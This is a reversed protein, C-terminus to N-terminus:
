HVQPTGRGGGAPPGGAAGLSLVPAQVARDFSLRAEDFDNRNQEKQAEIAAKSRCIWHPVHSGTPLERACLMEGDATTPLGLDAQTVALGNMADYHSAALVIEGSSSHGVYLRHQSTARTMGSSTGDLRPTACASILFVLSLRVMKSLMNSEKTLPYRSVAAGRDFRCHALAPDSQLGEGARVPRCRGAAFM